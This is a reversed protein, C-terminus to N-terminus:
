TVINNLYKFYLIFSYKRSKILYIQLNVKINPLDLLYAYASMVIKKLFIIPITFSSLPYYHFIPIVLNKKKLFKFINQWVLSFISSTLIIKEFNFIFLLYDIKYM